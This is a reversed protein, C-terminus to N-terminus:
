APGFPKPIPSTCYAGYTYIYQRSTIIHTDPIKKLISHALARTGGVGEIQPDQPSLSLSLSPYISLDISRYISLYVLYISSISLYISQRGPSGQSVTATASSALFIVVVPSLPQPFSCANSGIAATTHTNLLCHLFTACQLNSHM